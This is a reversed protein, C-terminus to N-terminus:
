AGAEERALRLLMRLAERAVPGQEADSQLQQLRQAVAGAYGAGELAALDADAPELDLASSDLRLARLRAQARAIDQSLAEWAALGLHGRLTLRLVDDAQLAKLRAALTEADAPLALTVDWHQWRYRGVPLRQVDPLGQGLRVLLATGAEGSRFRDPEPTGAYWSRPGVQLCGHWDGLALYDLHAREARDLAIPNTADAAEPLREAISGHALGVRALGPPTPLSDFVRTVDDYTHRQTLPAALVAMTDLVTVGPALALHVNAPLCDLQRARSWVSDALAADHNGPILVWPGAYAALADFLRRITRDSVAQTDFVDGAVLVADVRHTCALEALRAVAHLRAEALVAGDDDDFQGYQRGIQWDATHLFTPM